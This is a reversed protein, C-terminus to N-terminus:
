ILIGLMKAKKILPHNADVLRPAGMVDGIPALVIQGQRYVVAQNWNGKLASEAATVGMQLTLFRDTVTPAQARQLHGLVVHRSEWHLEEEIRRSLHFAIGGYREAQPSKAELFSVLPKGNKEFAGEAAVIMLSKSGQSKKEQIHKLLHDLDFPREPILIIDAYSSLGGGLAIWGATRGMAEVVIIREHAEATFRLADVSQAVVTCATDYGFTVDTGSLDNDITKPVGIINVHDKVYSLAMFTGDGGCVILGDLQLAKYAKIFEEERGKIASKNSSGLITGAMSHAHNINEYNLNIFNHQFIGEFGNKIGILEVQHNLLVRATSEIVGNLGPADGGGTMIGLKM